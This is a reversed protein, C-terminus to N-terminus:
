SSLRLFDEVEDSEDDDVSIVQSARLLNSAIGNLLDAKSVPIYKQRAVRINSIDEDEDGDGDGDGDGDDDDNRIMDGNRSRGIKRKKKKKEGNDNVTGKVDSSKASDTNRLQAADNQLTRPPQLTSPTLSCRCRRHRQPTRVALSSLNQLSATSSSSALM